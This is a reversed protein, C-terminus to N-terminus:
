MGLNFGITALGSQALVWVLWAIFVAVFSKGVPAKGLVSVAVSSLWVQWLGFLEFSTLFKKLFPGTTDTALVGLGLALVPLLKLSVWFVKRRDEMVEPGGTM